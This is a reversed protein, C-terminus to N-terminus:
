AYATSTKKQECTIKLSKWVATSAKYSIYFFPLTIKSIIYIKIRNLIRKMIERGLSIGNYMEVGVEM